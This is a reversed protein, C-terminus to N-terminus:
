IVCTIIMQLSLSGGEILLLTLSSTLSFFTTKKEINGGYYYPDWTRTNLSGERTELRVPFTIEEMSKTKSPM